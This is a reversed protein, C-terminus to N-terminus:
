GKLRSIMAPTRAPSRGLVEGLHAGRDHRGILVRRLERVQAPSGVHRRGLAEPAEAQRADGAGVPASILLVGLELPDVSRRPLGVLSQRGVQREELLGLTAVVPAEAGLQVEEGERALDPGPEREEVGLAPGQPADHLVVRALAVDLAAVVEDGARVDGLGVEELRRTVQLPEGLRHVRRHLEVLALAVVELGHVAREVHQDELRALAAVPLQGQPEELETDHVAVLERTDDLPERPHAAHGLVVRVDEAGSLLHGLLERAQQLEHQVQQAVEAQAVEVELERRPGLALGHAAVRLPGLGLRDQGVDGPALAELQHEVLTASREVSGLDRNLRAVRDAAGM